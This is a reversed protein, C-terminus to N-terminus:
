RVGSLDIIIISHYYYNILKYRALVISYELASFQM